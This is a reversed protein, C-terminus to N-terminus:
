SRPTEVAPLQQMYLTQNPISFRVGLGELEELIQLGIEERLALHASLATTLTFYQVFIDLSSTGFDHFYVLSSTQDLGDHRALLARLAALAQRLQTPTTDYTVSITIRVRRETMRTMNIIATNTILRNPVSVLSRDLTRIRTSRFGVEEVTGEVSDYKIMDGVHFPRDAIIMFSGFVNALTDQAALAVALGGIGLSAILGTISFGFNQIVVLAAVIVVVIRLLKRVFPLLHADLESEASSVWQSIWVEVLSILNYTAWAVNVTLLLKLVGHAFNRANVPEMPLQLIQVGVWFGGIVFLLELPKNIAVLFLDDYITETKEAFPFLIKGFLHAFLRKLTLALLLVGLALLYRSLPITYFTQQFFSSDM